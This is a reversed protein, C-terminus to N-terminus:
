SEGSTNQHSLIMVAIGGEQDVREWTFDTVGGGRRGDCFRCFLFSAAGANAETGMAVGAGKGTAVGTDKGMAEWAEIGMAVGAEIGLLGGADTGTAEWVDTGLAM